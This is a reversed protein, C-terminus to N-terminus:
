RGFLRDTKAEWEAVGPKFIYFFTSTVAALTIFRGAWPEWSTGASEQLLIWGLAAVGCILVASVTKTLSSWSAATLLGIFFPLVMGLLGVYLLDKDTMQVTDLLGADIMMDEM